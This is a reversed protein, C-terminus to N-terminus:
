SKENIHAKYYQLINIAEQRYGLDRLSKTYLIWAEKDYPAIEYARYSWLLSKQFNKQEYFSKAIQMAHDYTLSGTIKSENYDKPLPLKGNKIQYYDEKKIELSKSKILKTDMVKQDLNQKQPMHFLFICLVFFFILLGLLILLLNIESSFFKKM